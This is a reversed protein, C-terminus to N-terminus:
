LHLSNQWVIYNEERELYDNMEYAKAVCLAYYGNQQAEVAEAFIENAKGWDIFFAKAGAREKAMLLHENSATVARDCKALSGSNLYSLPLSQDRSIENLNTSACATLFLVFISLILIKIACYKYLNIM